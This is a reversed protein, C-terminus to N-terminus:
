RFFVGFISRIMGWAVSVAMAALLIVIVIMVAYQKVEHRNM